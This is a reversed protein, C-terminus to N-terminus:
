PRGGSSLHARIRALLAAADAVRSPDISVVVGPAVEAAIWAGPSTQSAPSAAAAVRPAAAPPAAPVPPAADDSLARELEADTRGHLARQIQALSLGHAQLRKVALVQLLHRFGYIAQRGDYRLPRDLLGSGQYFRVTRADPVAQVRADAPSEAKALLRAATECLADLSFTARRHPELSAMRM